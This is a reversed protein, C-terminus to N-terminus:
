PRTQLMELTERASEFLTNSVSTEQMIKRLPEFLRDADLAVIQYGSSGLITWDDMVVVEGIPMVGRAAVYIEVGDLDFRTKISM